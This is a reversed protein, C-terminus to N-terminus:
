SASSRTRRSTTPPCAHAGVAEGGTRGSRPAQTAASPFRRNSPRPPSTTCRSGAATRRPGPPAAPARTSGAWAATSPSPPRAPTSSRSRSTRSQDMELGHLQAFHAAEALGAVTTILFVNVALKMLLGNPVPGCVVTNACM